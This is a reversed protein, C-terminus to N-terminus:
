PVAQVARRNLRFPLDVIAFGHWSTAESNGQYAMFPRTLGVKRSYLSKHRYSVVIEMHIYIELTYGYLHVDSYINESFVIGM